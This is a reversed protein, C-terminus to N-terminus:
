GSNQGSQWEKGILAVTDTFAKGSQQQPQKPDYFRGHAVHQFDNWHAITRISLPKDPEVFLLGAHQLEAAKFLLKVWFALLTKCRGVKALEHLRIFESQQFINILITLRNELQTLM